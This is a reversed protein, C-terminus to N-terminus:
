RRDSVLRLTYAGGGSSFARARIVYEGAAPLTFVLRSNTTGADDDDDNEALVSFAGGQMRGLEVYTDFEASEMTITVQEGAQGRYLWLVHEDDLQDTIGQGATLPQATRAATEEIRLTYGGRGSGSFARARIGYVGDAPAEVRLRANTVGAGDDDSATVDVDTGNLPGFELYADFDESSMTISIRQGGRLQVSYLDYLLEEGGDELTGSSDGLSGNRTEGIRISAPRAARPPATQELSLTYDGYSDGGLAHAVLYYTGAAPAVWRIRADRDGGSDDDGQLMETIGGVPRMLRLYSDVAASRMTATLREGQQVEFRYVHFAEGEALRPDSATLRGNVTQGVRITQPQQAAAAGTWMFLLLVGSLIRRVVYASHGGERLRRTCSFM